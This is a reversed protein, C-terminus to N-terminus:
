EPFFFKFLHVTRGADKEQSIIDKFHESENLDIELYDLGSSRAETKLLQSYINNRNIYSLLFVGGKKKLLKGVTQFLLPIADPWFIVDAGLIVEFTGYKNKFIDADSGWELMACLPAKEQASDFNVDINKQLVDLVKENHDTLIVNNPNTSFKAAMLGAVGVGAGLELTKRDGILGPHHSLYLALVRCAPWVIQGTLDFDTSSASHLAWIELSTNNIELKSSTYSTDIFIEPDFFISSDDVDEDETDDNTTEKSESAIPHPKIGLPIKEDEQQNLMKM